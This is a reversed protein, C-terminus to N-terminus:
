WPMLVYYRDLGLALYCEYHILFTMAISSVLYSLASKGTMTQSLQEWKCGDCLSFSSENSSLYSVSKSPVRPLQFRGGTEISNFSPDVGYWPLSYGMACTCLAVRIFSILLSHERPTIFFCADDCHAEGVNIMGFFSIVTRVIDSKLSSLFLPHISLNFFRWFILHLTHIKYIHAHQANIM